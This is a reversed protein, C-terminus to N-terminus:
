SRQTVAATEAEMRTATGFRPRQGKHWWLVLASAIYISSYTGTIIGVLFTYAFDNIAGGGFLYLSTTALFVTGSTIITRSLTQNLAQNIVEKFSGRVGMKLDERIRDFIVITDNISFGIITLVAAVMTANFQRGEGFAGTLCYCGITMLVDHIVAVVAGVAFSFEYRVAVYFLIGLLSLLSAEVATLMIENGIIPGVNDLAIRKFHADPFDKILAAEVDAAKKFPAVIRLKETTGGIETQYQIGPEKVDTDKKIATRIQEADVKQTFGLTLSDGGAFDVGLLNGQYLRYGGYGLGVLIITWSIAFAPVALKMFDLKAARIIHLMPLSKLLGKELLFDFILRTVVLATFLSAAVGITLTVGFGKIPGTGMFILIVSSILTTVHSDFITGFARAYGAAVAGRLSKGKRSEERIREFILVNADVAMGITLVVGAIGPLTLTTGYSCMVGLLIIINTILAFDAVMGAFLYYVAMFGAVLITGIVAARVGSAVTDKGLTPDVSNQSLVDLPAQLPNELGAALDHASKDTFNGTIQGSGGTIAGRIVPASLLEGDLVIAMREGVHQETLDGFITAGESTLTFDIEPQGMTDRSVFASRIYKGTMAAKKQILLPEITAPGNANEEKMRMLQYGPELMGADILEKSKPHVMRFELFAARSINARAEDIAEQSLGPLQVLIRDSGQPQIVPEAVGFRDVRRRLVEVAENLAQDKVGPSESNTGLANTDMGVLFSTGGQLDLGLKIKGAADAQLRNLIARTPNLEQTVDYMPFYPRIDNTGIAALLNGFTGVPKEKELASWRDVIAKFNDDQKIATMKFQDGLNTGVPPYMEWFSWLVVVLVLIFKWLNNQNMPRAEPNAPIAAV